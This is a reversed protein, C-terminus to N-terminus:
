RSPIHIEPTCTLLRPIGRGSSIFLATYRAKSYKAVNKDLVMVDSQSITVIIEALWFDTNTTAGVYTNNELRSKSCEQTRSITEHKM